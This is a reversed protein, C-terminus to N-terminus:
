RHYIKVSSYYKKEESLFFFEPTLTDEVERPSIAGVNVSGAMLQVWFVLIELLELANM